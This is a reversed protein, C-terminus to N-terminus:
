VDAGNALLHTSSLTWNGPCDPCACRSSLDEGSCNLPSPDYPIITDNQVTTPLPFDIQFPSGGFREQGMYRLFSIYQKAGGGILDMIKGNTAGFKVESCSDYFGEGFKQGVYFAISKVAEKPTTTLQTSTVNLFLSQDPSCTFQCYFQRFNNRCAPCTAVTDLSDNTPSSPRDPHRFEAKFSAHKGILAEAQSLSSSLSELQTITCCTSIGAQQQDDYQQVFEAGCM